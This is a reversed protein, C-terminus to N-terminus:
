EMRDLSEVRLTDKFLRLDGEGGEGTEDILVRHDFPLGYLIDINM